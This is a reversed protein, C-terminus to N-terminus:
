PQSMNWHSEHGPESTDGTLLQRLAPHAPTQWRPPKRCWLRLQRVPITLIDTVSTYEGAEAAETRTSGRSSARRLTVILIM